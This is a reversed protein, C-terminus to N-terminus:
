RRNPRVTDRSSQPRKGGPPEFTPKAEAKHVETLQGVQFLLPNSLGNPTALRLERQGLEANAAITLQLVVKDALM